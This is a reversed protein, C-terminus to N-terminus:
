FHSSCFCVCSPHARGPRRLSLFQEAGRPLFLHEGASLFALEAQDTVASKGGLNVMLRRQRQVVVSAM